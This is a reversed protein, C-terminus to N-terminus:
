NILQKIAAIRTKHEDESPTIYKFFDIIENHLRALSNKIKITSSSLWPAIYDKEIIPQNDTKISDSITNEKDNLDKKLKKNPKDNLLDDFMAVNSDRKM